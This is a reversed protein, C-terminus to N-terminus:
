EPPTWAFPAFAENIPTDALHNAYNSITKWAAGLVVGLVHAKTYGAQLFRELDVDAVFGREHVVQKTFVRLAELKGDEIAKNARVAEIIAPSVQQMSALASHAAVCFTCRNEVAVILPILEQETRSFGAKTFYGAMAQYAELVVPNEALVGYLHPVFGLAKQSQELAARAGEPASQLTHVVLQTM